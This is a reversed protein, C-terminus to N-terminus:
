QSKLSDEAYRWQIMDTISVKTIAGTASAIYQMVTNTLCLVVSQLSNQEVCGRTSDTVSLLICNRENRKKVGHILARSFRIM